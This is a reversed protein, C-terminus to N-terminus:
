YVKFGGAQNLVHRVTFAVVQAIGHIAIFQARKTPFALV